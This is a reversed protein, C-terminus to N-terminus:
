DLIEIKKYFKKLKRFVRQLHKPGKTDITLKATTEFLGVAPSENNQYVQVINAGEESIIGTIHSLEGPADRLELRIRARRGSYILGKDIIKGLLNIDINGGCIVLVINKGKFKKPNEQYLLKFAALPLAGAGEALIHAKELLELVAMAIQSDDVSMPIDVIKELLRYMSGHAKGVKIGDAFTSAFKSHVVRHEKLSRIMNSAGSAQGGVVQTQPSEAKLITGMGGMLGGGGISGFLYDVRPLENLIERAVTSQGAIIYPDEFPHVFIMNKDKNFEKAFVFADDISHGSLVVEAGFSKTNEIKNLPANEPMIIVAKTKFHKAAWAVGQAHNGASVALVGQERQEKTLKSIKYLAGRMKFSGVSLMNELKLFINCKFETSLRDSRVLPSPAIEKSILEYADQFDKQHLKM